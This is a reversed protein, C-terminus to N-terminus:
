DSPQMADLAEAELVRIDDKMEAREAGHLGLDDLERHLVNYDLGVPGGAGVRWQTGISCFMQVAPWNEPWVEGKM